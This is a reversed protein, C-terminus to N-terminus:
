ILYLQTGDCVGYDQLCRAPDLIGSPSAFCLRELGSSLYKDSTIEAVGDAMVRCVNAIPVDPPAFMDFSDGIAPVFVKVLVKNM